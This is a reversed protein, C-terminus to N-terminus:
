ACRESCNEGQSVLTCAVLEFSVRTRMCAIVSRDVAVIFKQVEMQTPPDMDEIRKQISTAASISEAAAAEKDTAADAPRGM